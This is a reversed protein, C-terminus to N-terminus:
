RDGFYQVCGPLATADVEHAIDQRMGAAPGARRRRAMANELVIGVRRSRL